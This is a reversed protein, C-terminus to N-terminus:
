YCWTVLKRKILALYVVIKTIKGRTLIGINQTANAFFESVGATCNL